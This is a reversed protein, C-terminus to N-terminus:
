IIGHFYATQETPYSSNVETKNLSPKINTPCVFYVAGGALCISIIKAISVKDFFINSLNFGFFDWIKIDESGSERALRKRDSSLLFSEIIFSPIKEKFDCPYDIHFPWLNNKELIHCVKCFM